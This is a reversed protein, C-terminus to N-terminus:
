RGTNDKSELSSKPKFSSYKKCCDKAKEFRDNWKALTKREEKYLNRYKGVAKNRADEDAEVVSKNYQSYEEVISSIAINYYVSKVNSNEDVFSGKEKTLKEALSTIVNIGEKNTYGEESLVVNLINLTSGVIKIQKPGNKLINFNSKEVNGSYEILFLKNNAEMDRIQAKIYDFVLELDNEISPMIIKQADNKKDIGM